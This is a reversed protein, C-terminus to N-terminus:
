LLFSRKDCGVRTRPNFHLDMRDWTGGLDTAGWGPAHISISKFVETYVQRIPRVGGPHTSQFTGGLFGMWSLYGDCGVRTRPNFDADGVRIHYCYRDCGVRTRPNFDLLPQILPHVACTAGWGPAHISIHYNRWFIIEARRDCGVRTRPNFYNRRRSRWISIETAGWGPAHISIVDDLIILDPRWNDCGVRTRPNFYLCWARLRIHICDCGVRTRPNFNLSSSAFADARATAGWGPAHISIYCIREISFLFCPRVGGPHTSQFLPLIHRSPRRQPTAGWGPAHISIRRKTCITCNTKDCGVRTRPNFYLARMRSSAM